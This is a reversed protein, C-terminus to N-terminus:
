KKFIQIFKCTIMKRFIAKEMTASSQIFIKVEPPIKNPFIIRERGPGKVVDSISNKM